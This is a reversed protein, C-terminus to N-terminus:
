VENSKVKPFIKMTTIIKFNENESLVQVDVRLDGPQEDYFGLNTFGLHILGQSLAVLAKEKLTGTWNGDFKNDPTLPTLNYKVIEDTVLPIPFRPYNFM